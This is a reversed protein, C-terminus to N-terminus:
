IEAAEKRPPRPLPEREQTVCVGPRYILPICVHAPSYPLWHGTLCSTCPALGLIASLLNYGSPPLLCSNAPRSNRATQTAQLLGSEKESREKGPEWIFPMAQGKPDPVLLHINSSTPGWRPIPPHPSTNSAPPLPLEFHRPCVIPVTHPARTPCQLPLTVGLCSHALGTQSHWCM